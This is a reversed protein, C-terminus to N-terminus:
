YILLNNGQSDCFIAGGNMNASNNMFQSFLITLNKNYVYLAAGSEFVSNNIFSINEFWASGLSKNLTIEIYIYIAAGNSSKANNMFKSNKIIVQDCM